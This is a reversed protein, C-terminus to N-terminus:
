KYQIEYSSYKKYKNDWFVLYQGNNTMTGYSEKTECNLSAIIHFTSNNLQRILYIHHKHRVLIVNRDNNYVIPFHVDDKCLENQILTITKNSNQKFVGNQLEFVLLDNIKRKLTVWLLQNDDIFHIKRGNSVYQTFKFEWKKQLGKEWIVLEDYGCSAFM